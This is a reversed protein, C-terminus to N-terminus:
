LSSCANIRYFDRDDIKGVESGPKPSSRQKVFTPMIDRTIVASVANADSTTMAM